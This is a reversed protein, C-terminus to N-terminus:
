SVMVLAWLARSQNRFVAPSLLCTAFCKAASDVLPFATLSNPISVAFMNSNQSQTPPTVRQPGSDAQRDDEGDAEVVKNLQEGARMRHIFVEGGGCRLFVQRHQKRQNTDPVVVEEPSFGFRNQWVVLVHVTKRGVELLAVHFGVTFVNVTVTVCHIVLSAWDDPALWASVALMREILQDM